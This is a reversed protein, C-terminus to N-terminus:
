RPTRSGVCQRRRRRRGRASPDAPAATRPRAGCPAPGLRGASRDAPRTVTTGGSPRQGRERRILSFLTETGETNGSYDRPEGLVEAPQRLLNTECPPPCFSTPRGLLLGIAGGRLLRSSTWAVGRRPPRAEQDTRWRRPFGSGHHFGSPASVLVLPASLPGRPRARPARAAPFHRAPRAFGPHHGRARRDRRRRSPVRARVRRHRRERRALRM